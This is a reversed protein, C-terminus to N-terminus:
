NRIKKHLELQRLDLLFSIRQGFKPANSKYYNKYEKSMLLPFYIEFGRDFFSFMFGADYQFGKVPLLNNPNLHNDFSYGMDLFLKLPVYKIPFDVVLNFAMLWDITQGTEIANLPTSVKFFGDSNSLQRSAFGQQSSRGIYLDEFLYDQQGRKGNLNFGVDPNLRFKYNNSRWLFGGMFFRLHVGTNYNKLQYRIFSNAEVSTKIFAGTQEFNLSASFPFNIDNRKFTYNLVNAYFRTLTDKTFTENVYDFTLEKKLIVHNRLSIQHQLKELKETRHNLTFIVEPHIAYYKLPKVTNKYTFSQFKVGPKFETLIGKKPRLYYDISATGNVKKSTLGYFLSGSFDVNKVPQKLNIMAAGLQVGDHQNFAVAPVAFPFEKGKKDVWNLYKQQVNHLRKFRITATETTNISELSDQAYVSTYILLVLINIVLLLPKM